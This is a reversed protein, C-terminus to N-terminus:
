EPAFSIGRQTLDAALGQLISVRESETKDGSQPAAFGLPDHQHRQPRLRTRRKSHGPVLREVDIAVVRGCTHHYRIHGRTM